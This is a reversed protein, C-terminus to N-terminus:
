IINEFEKKLKFLNMLFIASCDKQIHISKYIEIKLHSSINLRIDCQIQISVYFHKKLIVNNLSIKM